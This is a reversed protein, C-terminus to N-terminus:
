RCWSRISIRCLSSNQKPIHYNINFPGFDTSTLFSQSISKTNYILFSITFQSLQQKNGAFAM